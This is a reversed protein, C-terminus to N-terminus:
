EGARRRARAAAAKAARRQEERRHQESIEYDGPAIGITCDECRSGYSRVPGGCQECLRDGNAQPAGIEAVTRARTLLHIAPAYATRGM